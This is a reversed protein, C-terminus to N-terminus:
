YSIKLATGIRLEKKMLNGQKYKLLKIQNITYYSSRSRKTRPSYIVTSFQGAVVGDVLGKAKVQGVVNNLRVM